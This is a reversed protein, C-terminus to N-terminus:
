REREERVLVDVELEFASIPMSIQWAELVEPHLEGILGISQGGVMIKGVRGDLFSRHTTPELTYDQLLYYMLVDLSTHIESFNANPHAVLGAIKIITKSGLELSLNPVAVEGIEFLRHPYFARPSATEIRLLSPLIWSRLCSYNLSMVNDVEVVPHESPILNMREVLDEHSMLINSFMEQFGMGIMQDRIDDSTQELVSLAGVTFQSPMIPAFTEYGRSIAVDEAVDIPHMLDSRYSPLRVALIHRSSKVQYGYATLAQHVTEAGMPLGLASEIACLPVKQVESIDCPTRLTKGWETAYPYVVEIPEIDAGRDALNAAFINLTLLVMRLDTGTVEVMLESDGIQVEGIERSNIIPPFSLIQGEKDWLLPLSTHDALIPSYEIGKPHVTLIEKLTLQESLGLPTFRAEEPKVLGYTVPFQIKPLRYLGISVTQRKHGYIDALKEQVQILQTLGEETVQYKTACCAAVFPRVNEMGKTVTIKRKPRSKTQLFPYSAPTKQLKIRIQRAIGEVCWLDPRNSDQLEVRIEGTAPTHDKLEGKVLTLWTEIQDISTSQGVLAEFDKQFISITPM